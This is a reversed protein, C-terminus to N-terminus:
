FAVAFTINFTFVVVDVTVGIRGFLYSLCVCGVQLICNPGNTGANSDVSSTKTFLM